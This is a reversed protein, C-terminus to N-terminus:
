PRRHAEVSLRLALMADLYPSFRPETRRLLDAARDLARNADEPRGALRAQYSAVIHGLLRAHLVLLALSLRRVLDAAAKQRAQLDALSAELFDACAALTATDAESFPLARRHPDSTGLFAEIRRLYDDAAAADPGFAAALHAARMEEWPRDPNWLAEALAAMALGSPYFARFSQCSVIGDLGLAKLQGLDEHFIRGIHTDTLQHWVAWMLHYDFDFSDGPFAEHWAALTKIFFANHRSVAFRNLAPRPWVQGDDCAPDALSHGFCRTIPAFMLIANGSREDGQRPDEVIKVQEPPWWLEIYALFVFRTRPARRHLAASLANILLAYWDSITLKRCEACECKNNVADSLWVHVVDLEPHAECYRVVTEVFTDFAPRFSYCLETNIPIDAFLKREGNVEALWRARDASVPTEEKVWGSRPMGFAAGTWGHGVRHFVLGRRKMAAIVQEDFALAEEDRLPPGAHEPNYQREYWQNYFYRSHVFQLFITNLRHKVCWDVMGLAHALSTAGEICVGRHRYRPTEVIPAEPLRVAQMSPIVEGAPGPRVFRVGQTELFAYVGFLVSRANRGAIHLADREAWIAYGDDWAAPSLPGTAPAPMRDCVGLWVADASSTVQSAGQVAPQAGTLKELYRALERGAYALVRDDAPIGSRIWRIHSLTM